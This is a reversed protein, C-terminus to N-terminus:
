GVLSSLHSVRLPDAEVQEVSRPELRLRRGDHVGEAGVDSRSSGAGLDLRNGPSLAGHSHGRQVLSRGRGSSYERAAGHLWPDSTHPSYPREEERGIWGSEWMTLLQNPAVAGKRQIFTLPAALAPDNICVAM